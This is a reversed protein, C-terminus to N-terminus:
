HKVAALGMTPSSNHLLPLFWLEYGSEIGLSIVFHLFNFLLGETWSIMSSGSESESESESESDLANM